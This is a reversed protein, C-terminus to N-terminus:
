PGVILSTSFSPAGSINKTKSKINHMVERKLIPRDPAQLSGRKPM